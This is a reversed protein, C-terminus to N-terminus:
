HTAAPKAPRVAKKPHGGIVEEYQTSQPGFYGRMGGRIRINFECLKSGMRKRAAIMVSLEREMGAVKKTLQDFETQIKEFDELKVDNLQFKRNAKWVKAVNAAQRKIGGFSYINQITGNKKM